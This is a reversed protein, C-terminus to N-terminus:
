AYQSFDVVTAHVLSLGYDDENSSVDVLYLGTKPINAPTTAALTNGGTITKVSGNATLTIATPENTIAAINASGPGSVAPTDAKVTVTVTATDTNSSITLAGHISYPITEVHNQIGVEQSYSDGYAASGASAPPTNSNFSTGLRTTATAQLSVQQGFIRLQHQIPKFLPLDQVGAGMATTCVTLVDTLSVTPGRYFSVITANVLINSFNDIDWVVTPIIAASAQATANVDASGSGANTISYAVQTAPFNTAGVGSNKNFSVTISNLVDPLSSVKVKAPGTQAPRALAAAVIGAIDYQRVKAAQRDTPTQDLALSAELGTVRDLTNGTYDYEREWFPFTLNKRLDYQVGFLKCGDSM